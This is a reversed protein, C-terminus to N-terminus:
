PRGRWLARGRRRLVVGALASTLLLLSAPEPVTVSSAVQFVASGGAAPGAVNRITLSHAGAGLDIVLRSYNLDALACGINGGCEGDGTPTSSIGLSVLNDFLEFTDLSLFLDLVTVTAPGSFTWPPAPAEAAVPNSTGVCLGSCAVAPGGGDFVFQLWTGDATISTASASRASSAVIVFFCVFVISTKM